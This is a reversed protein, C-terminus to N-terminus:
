TYYKEKLKLISDMIGIIRRFTGEVYDVTVNGFKASNGSNDQSSLESYMKNGLKITSGSLSDYNTNGFIFYKIAEKNTLGNGFKNRSFPFVLKLFFMSRAGILDQYQTNDKKFVYFKEVFYDFDSTIDPQIGELQTRIYKIQSELEDKIEYKQIIEERKPFFQPNGSSLVIASGSVASSTSSMAGGVARDQGVSLIRAQAKERLLFSTTGSVAIDSLPQSFTDYYPNDFGVINQEPVNGYLENVFGFKNKVGTLEKIYDAEKKINKQVYGITDEIAKEEKKLLDRKEKFDKLNEETM